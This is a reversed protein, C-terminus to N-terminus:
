AGPRKVVAGTGAACFSRAFIPQHTSSTSRQSTFSANATTGMANMIAGSKGVAGTKAYEACVRVFIDKDTGTIACVTDPDYREYQKKLIQFVCGADKLTKDKLAIGSAYRQFSWTAKDYKGFNPDDGPLFGSFKGDNEAATM